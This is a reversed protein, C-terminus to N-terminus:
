GRQAVTTAGSVDMYFPSGAKASAIARRGKPILGVIVGKPDLFRLDHDIGNIVRYGRWETPLGHSPSHRLKNDTVNFVIAVNRGNALTKICQGFNVGSFSFTLRYNPALDVRQGLPVKTYDYFQIEPFHAFNIHKEWLIDSTGNLRVAPRLGKRKAERVLAALDWYLLAIFQERDNFWLASKRMRAANVMPWYEARGANVLCDERCHKSAFPCLKANYAPHLHLIGTLYGLAEGKVIKAQNTTLLKYGM